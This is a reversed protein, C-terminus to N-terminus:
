KAGGILVADTGDTEALRVFVRQGHPAAINKGVFDAKIPLEREGRDVLVALQISEPGGLDAMADLAARVTRGTYLVDDVLVVRKRDLTFPVERALLRPDGIGARNDDRYLSIDLTGIPIDAGTIEALAAKLRLALTAGRRVIGVLVLEGTQPNHEAIEHALRKVYRGIAAADLAALNATSM